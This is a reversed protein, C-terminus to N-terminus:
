IAEQIQYKPSYGYKKIIDAIMDNIKDIGQQNIVESLKELAKAKGSESVVLFGTKSESIYYRSGEKRGFLDLGYKNKIPEALVKQFSKEGKVIMNIYFEERKDEKVEGAQRFKVDEFKPIDYSNFNASTLGEFLLRTEKDTKPLKIGTFIEFTKRSAKNYYGLWNLLENKCLPNDFNDILVLVKISNGGFGGAYHLFIKELINIREMNNYNTAEENLWSEFAEKEDKAKQERQRKAEEERKATEEAEVLRNREAQKLAEAAAETTINNEILYNALDFETKNIIYYTKSSIEPDNNKCVLQYITKPKTNEGTRRNYTIYNDDMDLYCGEIISKAIFDAKSYIKNEEPIRIQKSLTKEIKGAKMAPINATFNYFNYKM